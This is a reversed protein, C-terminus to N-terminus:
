RGGCDEVKAAEEFRVNGPVRPLRVVDVPRTTALTVICDPGPAVAVVRVIADEDESRASEVAIAHGGTPRVGLAVLVVLERDFDVAPPDLGPFARSWEAAFAAADRLVLRAPKDFGSYAGPAPALHEVPLPSPATMREEEICSAAVLAAALVVAAPAIRRM